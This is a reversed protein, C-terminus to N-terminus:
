GNFTGGEKKDWGDKVEDRKVKIIQFYNIESMKKTSKDANEFAWLESFWQILPLGNDDLAQNLKPRTNWNQESGIRCRHPRTQMWM